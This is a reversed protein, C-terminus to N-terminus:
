GSRAQHLLRDLYAASLEAILRFAYAHERTYFGPRSHESDIVGILLEESLIPVALESGRVADDAIYRPDAAVDNIWQTQRQQACAGVIGEGVQLRIQSELVGPAGRKPGFAAQQSLTLGDADLLYVVCDELDLLAIAEDTIAWCAAHPTRARQLAQHLRALALELRQAIESM